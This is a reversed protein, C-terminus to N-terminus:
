SQAPLDAYARDVATRDEARWSTFPSAALTRKAGRGTHKWTGVIQGDAVITPQFVGNGGPILRDLFGAPLMATRDAYGLVFEDFGPLLFVDRAADRHADLRDATAPDLLYEVGDAAIRELHPRAVALGARADTVTLGTWRVFDQLTAPGHSRFFRVALEGLAEDRELRRPHPIWEDVLVFAQDGDVMPGLCLTGTQALHWLLHYGRQSTVDLGAARWATFLEERRLRGGGALAGTAVERARQFTAEDLDLQARRRAAGAVVRAATTALLWPLDEALTLHLAGRMPWSRVIEGADLSAEIAARSRAATRVAVSTLAGAVDQAQVATLWGAVDAASPLPPGAIRQAVLRLLTIERNV